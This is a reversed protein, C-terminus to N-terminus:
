HPKSNYLLCELGMTLAFFNPNPKNPYHMVPWNYIKSANLSQDYTYDKEIQVQYSVKVAFNWRSSLEHNMELGIRLAQGKWRWTNLSYYKFKTISESTNEVLVKELVAVTKVWGAHLSFMTNNQKALNLTWLIPMQQVSFVYDQKTGKGKEYQLQTMTQGFTHTQASYGIGVGWKPYNGQILCEAGWNGNVQFQTSRQHSSSYGYWPKFAGLYIGINPLPIAAVAKDGSLGSTLMILFVALFVNVFRSSM